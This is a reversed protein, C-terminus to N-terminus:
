SSINRFFEVLLRVGFGTGGATMYKDKKDIFAPGAIDLHIFPYATFKQLFKGATIMGADSGGINKIDAIESKILEAYEEWFPFEAIREYVAEGADKLKEMPKDADAQMAVVGYKGIARSAAGTLTAADIVLEPKYNKAYSLADALIMRGEADTNIVEVTMGNHMTVVDGSVYANGNLRNDTAPILAIVHVNLRSRAIAYLVSAMTAAGAMDSKMNEMYNGTKINMGGTDYVIGKGVLVYPKENVPEMPKWEMVTFTPLDFSGKNVALLGGMKLSEIKKKGMVEVRAGCEIGMEKITEALKEANLEVVPENVMDRCRFVADRLINLHQADEKKIAHSLIKLEKLSSPKDDKGTKYKLFQYSSLSMGEALALVRMGKATFDIITVSEEKSEALLNYIKNGAKRMEELSHHGTKKKNVFQLFVFKNLRNITIFDKEQKKVQKRVFSREEETLKTRNLDNVSSLLYIHNDDSSIRNVKKILLTM